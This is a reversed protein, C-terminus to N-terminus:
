KQHCAVRLGSQSITDYKEKKKGFEKAAFILYVYIQKLLKIKSNTLDDLRRRQQRQRPLTM